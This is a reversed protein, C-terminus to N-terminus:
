GKRVIWIGLLICLVSAIWLPLLQEIFRMWLLNVAVFVVVSIFYRDFTNTEIPLFGRRGTHEVPAEIISQEAM